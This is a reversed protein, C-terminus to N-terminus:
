AKRIKERMNCVVFEMARAVSRNLAGLYVRYIEQRQAKAYAVGKKQVRGMKWMLEDLDEAPKVGM